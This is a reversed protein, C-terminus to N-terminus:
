KLKQKLNDAWLQRKSPRAMVINRAEDIKFKFDFFDSSYVDAPLAHFMQNLERLKAEIAKEEKTLRYSM